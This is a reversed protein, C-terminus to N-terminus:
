NRSCLLTVLNCMYLYMKKEYKEMIAIRVSFINGQAINYSGQQGVLRYTITQM